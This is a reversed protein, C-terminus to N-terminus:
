MSQNIKQELLNRDNSNVTKIRKVLKLLLSIILSDLTGWWSFTIKGLIHNRKKINKFGRTERYM